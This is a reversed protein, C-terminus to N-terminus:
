RDTKPAVVARRKMATPKGALKEAMQAKADVAVMYKVLLRHAQTASPGIREPKALLGAVKDLDLKSSSTALPATATQRAIQWDVAHAVWLAAVLNDNPPGKIKNLAMPGPVSPAPVTAGRLTTIAPTRPASLLADTWAPAAADRATLPGGLAFTARLSAVISAHDFVKGPFVKSGLGAPLWPSILLAPVRPGLRDFKCNRPTRARGWNWPHDGPATAALPSARDFFGGHEDWVVLLVSSQWLPSSRVANYVKSILAEGQSVSGLPHQSNGSKFNDFLGYNPEIWTYHAADGAKLDGVMDKMPRFFQKRQNYDSAEVMGELSLVQSFRDGQYIRWTKGAGTLRHFIHGKDFWMCRTPDTIAGNSDLASPNNDLGGSSAAHAFLRNPWTPGPMSSFWNDMLLYNNALTTVVRIDPQTFGRMVDAGGSRPFGTMAGGAVQAAVDDYAHPPDAKLRDTAGAGFGFEAPPPDVLGSLGFFHDFSRNELMLVFVHDIKSM